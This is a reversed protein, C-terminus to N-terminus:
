IAQGREQGQEQGRAQGQAQGQLPLVIRAVLGHGGDARGSLTVSGGLNDVVTQVIALGLGSGEEDTAGGRYFRDFVRARESEPIGPGDDAVEIEAHGDLRRVSVDVRCGAGGYRIANDILNKVLMRLDTEQARVVADDMQEAGLDVGRDLALPLLDTVVDTVVQTLPVEAPSARAGIEARALGLLQTVLTSTRRIGRQLEEIRDEMAEPPAHRLNDVQLQLATIPSRLEHAADAIFTREADILSSLRQMMRNISDLFPRLEEPAAQTEVPQLHNLDVKAVREGIEGLPRLSMRVSARVVWVLLPLLLVVPIAAWMAVRAANDNRVARQEAMQVWATGAQMAFVDWMRGNAGRAESFGPPVRPVLVTPDSTHGPLAGDGPRWTQIVIHPTPHGAPAPVPMAAPSPQMTSGAHALDANFQSALQRVVVWAGFAGLLGIVLALSGLSLSLRRHLSRVATQSPM